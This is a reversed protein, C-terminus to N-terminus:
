EEAPETDSQLASEPPLYFEGKWNHHQYLDVLDIRHGQGVWQFHLVWDSTQYKPHQQVYVPLGIHYHWLSNTYAYAYKPDGPSLSSWSPAIKGPYQSFDVLGVSQFKGIFETIKLQQDPPFRTFEQAFQAKFSVVFTM